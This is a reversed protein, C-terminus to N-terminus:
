IGKKSHILDCGHEPKLRRYAELNYFSDILQIIVFAKAHSFKWNQLAVHFSHNFTLLDSIIPAM